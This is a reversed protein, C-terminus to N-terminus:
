KTEKLREELAMCRKKCDYLEKELESIKEEDEAFKNLAQAFLTTAQENFKNQDDVIPEIYFAVIRRAIKKFFTVIPGIVPRDSAVDRYSLVMRSEAMKELEEKYAQMNYPTAVSSLIIDNFKIEDDKYGKEAIEQRIQAMIDEININEMMKGTGCAFTQM